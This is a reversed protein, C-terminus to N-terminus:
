LGMFDIHRKKIIVSTKKPITDKALLADNNTKQAVTKKATQNFANVAFALCCVRASYIKPAGTMTRIKIIAAEIAIKKVCSPEPIEERNSNSSDAM